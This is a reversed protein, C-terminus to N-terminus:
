RDVRHSIVLYLEWLAMVEAATRRVAFRRIFQRLTM